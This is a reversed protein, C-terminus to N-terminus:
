RLSRRCARLGRDPCRRARKQAGTGARRGRRPSRRSWRSRDRACRDQHALNRLSLLGAGDRDVLGLGDFRDFRRGGLGSLALLAPLFPRGFHPARKEDVPIAGPPRHEGETQREGRRILRSGPAGRGAPRQRGRKSQSDIRPQDSDHNAAPKSAPSTAEDAKAADRPAPPPLPPNITPAAPKTAQPRRETSVSKPKAKASAPAEGGDYPSIAAPIHINAPAGHASKAAPAPGPANPFEGSLPPGAVGPPPEGFGEDRAALMPGWMRGRAVFRVLIQGNRADIVLRQYGAPGARRRRSLGRAARHAAREVCIRAGRSETRDRGSAPRVALAAAAMPGNRRSRLRLRHVWRAGFEGLM